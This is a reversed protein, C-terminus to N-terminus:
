PKGRLWHLEEYAIRGAKVQPQALGADYAVRASVFVLPLLPLQKMLRRAVGANCSHRVMCRRAVGRQGAEALVGALTVGDWKKPVQVPHWALALQYSGKRLSSEYRKAPQADITVAIGIRDLDAVLQNAVMGAEPRSADVLLNLKLRGSAADRRLERSQGALQALLRNARKRDFSIRPPQTKTPMLRRCVPSRAVENSGTAALRGLRRRDIGRLLALRFRPDALYPRSSATGVGLYVLTMPREVVSEFRHAPQRGLAGTGHLSLHLKRAQFFDVADASKKFVRFRVRDVYPRGAFHDQHATLELGNKTWSKLKFPGTGIPRGRSSIAVGCSPASLLWPLEPTLRRLRIVIRNGVASVSEVPALLYGARGTRTRELSAAVQAATLTQGDHLRVGPRLTLTWVKGNPSTALEALHAVPRGESNLRYLTDYMLSVVQLESERSAQTPDITTPMDPLAATIDSGYQAPLFAWAPASLLVATSILVARPPFSRLSAARLLSAVLTVARPPFSRLSAARLLSAVL